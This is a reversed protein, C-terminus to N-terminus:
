PTPSKLLRLGNLVVILSAGMDAFVAMWMTGYGGLTLIFFILKVILAFSINQVLVRHTKDSLQIITPIKRLDDDMLAIDATEIATDSGMVGMAIGIDARALSPADNIGDGVMAVMAKQAQQDIIALKDEPLLEGRADSIGVEQAIANVALQNDGSLIMTQIGMAHLRQIAERSTEKVQDATIFLALVAQESALLSTTQGAKEYHALTEEISPTSLGLEQILRHSGLYYIQENIRAKTGRGPLAELESVANHDNRHESLGESIANSVPHDSQSSIALALQLATAEKGQAFVIHEQLAPKGATLTGTKDLCLTKLQRSNELYIGGKILIGHRAATALGSVVTVPTSIVLACPCAIVLLVLAKYIWALWEGGFFLPPIVAIALALALVVPTYISAFRDILRQTPAKASQAKEVSEIIRALTTNRVTATVKYDFAGQLNITGAYVADGIEKSVPMSEGTIPAQNVDSAGKTLVGDLPIQQGPAIRIIQELAIDAVAMRQWSGDAQLVTAEKPALKMLEGIAQRARDLSRGEIIEALNFLVMVMAAEPWQRILLAGTVAISMLANINLNGNRLAIFGKKYTHLGGIAIAGLALSITLWLPGSSLHNIESFFAVMAAIIIPWWPRHDIVLESPNDDDQLEPEFGLGRIATLVADLSDPTHTVTLIRQILNFDLDKVEKSDKFLQRIMGEETPCDMQMIRIATRINGDATTTAAPLEAPTPAAPASCSSSCSCCSTEESPSSNNPKSM